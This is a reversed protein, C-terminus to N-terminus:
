EEEPRLGATVSFLSDPLATHTLSRIRRSLTFVPIEAGARTTISVRLESQMPFGELAVIEVSLRDGDDLADRVPGLGSQLLSPYSTSRTQLKQFRLIEAYGPFDAAMWAQYLYRNERVVTRTGPEFHRARLEAAVRHCLVGGLRLTDALVRSRYHIERHADATAAPPAQRAAAKPSPLSAQTYVAQVPDIDYVRASDLQLITSEELRKGQARLQRQVAASAEIQSEVRQRSGKLYIRRVTTRAGTKGPGIGSHTLEEELYVDGAAASCLAITTLLLRLSRDM